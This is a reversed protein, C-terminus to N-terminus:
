NRVYFAYYYWCVAAAATTRFCCNHPPLRDTPRDTQAPLTRRESLDNRNNNDVIQPLSSFILILPSERWDDAATVCRPRRHQLYRQGSPPSSSLPWPGNHGAAAAATFADATNTACTVIARGAAAGDTAPRAGYQRPNRHWSSDRKVQAAARSAGVLGRNVFVPQGFM